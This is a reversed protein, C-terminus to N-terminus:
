RIHSICVSVSDVDLVVGHLGFTKLMGRIAFKPLATSSSSNNGEPCRIGVTLGKRVKDITFKNAEDKIDEITPLYLDRPIGGNEEYLFEVTQRAIDVM